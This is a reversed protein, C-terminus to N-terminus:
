GLSGPEGDGACAHVDGGEGPALAKALAELDGRSAEEWVGRGGAGGATIGGGSGSAGGNFKKSTLLSGQLSRSITKLYIM